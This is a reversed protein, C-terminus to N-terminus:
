LEETNGDVTFPPIKHIVLSTGSRRTMDHAILEAKEDVSDELDNDDSSLEVVGADVEYLIDVRPLNYRSRNAPRTPSHLEGELNYLHNPSAAGTTKHRQPNTPPTPSDRLQYHPRGSTSSGAQQGLTLM